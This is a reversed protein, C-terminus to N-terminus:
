IFTIIVMVIYILRLILVLLIVTMMSIYNNCNFGACLCGGGECVCVCMCARMCVRESVCACVLVYQGAYM